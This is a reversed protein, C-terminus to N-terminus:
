NVDASAASVPTAIATSADAPIGGAPTVIPLSSYSSEGAHYPSSRAHHFSPAVENADSHFPLESEMGKFEYSAQFLIQKLLNDAYIVLACALAIGCVLGVAKKRM